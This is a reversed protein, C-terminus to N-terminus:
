IPIYCQNEKTKLDHILIRQASIIILLNKMIGIKEIKLHSEFNYVDKEM